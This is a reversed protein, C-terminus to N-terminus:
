EDNEGLAATILNQENMNEKIFINKITGMRMVITRDCVRLIEPLESSILIIGAGKKALSFIMEYIDEKTGVDIAQTPEDFIFVKAPIKWWRALLVKQQNGGSLNQVVTNISATKINIEKVLTNTIQGESKKKIIGFNSLSKKFFLYVPTINNQLSRSFFLGNIKRDEPLFAIGKKVAQSTNKILLQKGNFFIKGSTVKRIGFIIEALETRGAGVLGAIGLIEGEKLNFSINKLVKESSVNELCLIEKGIIKRELQINTKIERGIMKSILFKRDIDKTNFTGMNNGDKLVTVRDAITFIDDLRHSVYLITISQRRLNNIMSYLTVIEHESLSSSPEDMIIIKAQKNLAKIIEILQCQARSLLGIPTKVNINDIGYSSLINKSDKYIEKMRFLFGGNKKSQSENGLFINEAVNLNPVLSLDQYVCYIGLNHSDHPNHIVIENGNLYIKGEDAHHAGAIIKLLTSKGAGNEGVIGMVENQKVALDIKELSQVGGFRKSIGKLELIFESM